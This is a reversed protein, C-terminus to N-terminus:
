GRKKKKKKKKEKKLVPNRQTTGTTGSNVRYVLSAEFESIWRSRGRLHQSLFNHAVM